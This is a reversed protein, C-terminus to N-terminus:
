DWEAMYRYVSRQDNYGLSTGPLPNDKKGSGVSIEGHILFRSRYVISIGGDPRDMGRKFINDAHGYLGGTGPSDTAGNLDPAIEPLAKGIKFMEGPDDQEIGQVTTHPVGQFDRGEKVRSGMSDKGRPRWLARIRYPKGNHPEHPDIVAGKGYLVDIDEVARREQIDLRVHRCEIGIRIFAAPPKISNRMIRLM